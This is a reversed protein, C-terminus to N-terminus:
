EEADEEPIEVVVPEDLLEVKFGCDPSFCTLEEGRGKIKKTFLLKGCKPCDKDSPTDRTIFDCEPYNSCGFFGGRRGGAGRKVVNGDCKPCRGLPLSKANRCEPFGACALFFGFRGLKKMM